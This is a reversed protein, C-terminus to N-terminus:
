KKGNDHGQSPDLMDDVLENINVEAAAIYHDAAGYYIYLKDGFISTATPFVVNSVPGNVEWEETPSFLPEHLRGLVKLPNELDLLAAAAHYVRGANREEVAHFILVWGRETEIPVCGGGISRSEFWHKNELIVYDPLERLYKEWYQRTKLQEFDDFFAIQIEPLVRHILAYKGGIKKPFLFTDKEWILVDDGARDEYYSKFFFYLDKLHAEGEQLIDDLERYQIRPTIIGRKAFTKFDTSVAYATVANKGDHAVYTMYLKDDLKTIRPDEVGQSEYDFERNMMPREWREQVDLPGHLRAYGISSKHDKDLARYYLHVTDGEQWAAPNLVAHNEFELDTPKLIVGLKKVETM